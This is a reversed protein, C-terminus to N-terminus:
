RCPWNRAFLDGVATSLTVRERAAVPYTELFALFQNSDMKVNPPPCSSPRGSARERKLRARYDSGAKTGLDRLAKIESSFIAGIGKEKLANARSLFAGVSVDDSAASATGSTLMM